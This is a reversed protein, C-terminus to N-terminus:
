QETKVFFHFTNDQYSYSCSVIDTTDGIQCNFSIVTGRQKYSKEDVYLAQGQYGLENLYNSLETPLEQLAEIPFKIEDHESFVNVNYIQNRIEDLPDNDNYFPEIYSEEEELAIKKILEIKENKKNQMYQIAFLMGCFILFGISVLVLRKNPEYLWKKM